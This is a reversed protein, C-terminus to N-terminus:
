GAEYAGRALRGGWAGTHGDADARAPWQAFPVEGFRDYVIRNRLSTFTPQQQVLRYGLM